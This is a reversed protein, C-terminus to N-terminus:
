DNEINRVTRMMGEQISYKPKWDLLSNAKNTNVQLDGFLRDSLSQKGILKLLSTLWSQPIPILLHNKNLTAKIYKILATTSIDQGDSILFTQNAANKHTLCTQIFSVLNGVYIFSRKNKIAGLPLPINLHALNLLKQFNGKAKAGYVLPPRIIVVELNSNKSIQILQKEAERKSEAYAEQPNEKGKEEFPTISINGNVGISSLFLFRKVGAQVAQEALHKTADINIAAYAEYPNNSEEKIVHARGALHIVVDIDKLETIWDINEGISKNIYGINSYHKDPTTRSVAVVDVNEKSLAHCLHKGIFGNAGTILIRM